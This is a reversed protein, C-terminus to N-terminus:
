SEKIDRIGEVGIYSLVPALMLAIDQQNLGIDFASNLFVVLASITALWLKRSRLALPLSLKKNKTAM